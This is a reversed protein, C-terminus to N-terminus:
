LQREKVSVGYGWEVLWREMKVNECKRKKNRSVKAQTRRTAMRYQYVRINCRRKRNCTSWFDPCSIKLTLPPNNEFLLTFGTYHLDSNM